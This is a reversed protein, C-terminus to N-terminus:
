EVVISILRKPVVIFRKLQKGELYKRVRELKLVEEKIEEESAEAPVEVTGRVKGNVQIPLVIRETQLLEEEWKPWSEFYISRGKGLREWMEECVFPAFPSLLHILMELGESFTVRWREDKNDEQTWGYLASSFEMLSAIATNFHFREIDQTVKKITSHTLRRKERDGIQDIKGRWDPDFQNLNEEFL